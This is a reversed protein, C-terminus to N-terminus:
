EKEVYDIRAMLVYKAQGEQTRVPDPMNYLPNIKYRSTNEGLNPFNRLKDQEKLWVNFQEVKDMTDTNNTTTDQTDLTEIAIFGFTYSKYQFGCIDTRVVYEGYQPVLARAGPYLDINEFSLQTAGLFSQVWTKLAEHKNM